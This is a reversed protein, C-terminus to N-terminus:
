SADLQEVELLRYDTDFNWFSSNLPYVEMNRNVERRAAQVSENVGSAQVKVVCAGYKTIRLLYPTAVGPLEDEGGMLVEEANAGDEFSWYEHEVALPHQRAFDSEPDNLEQEIRELAEQESDAQVSVAATAAIVFSVRYQKRVSGTTM